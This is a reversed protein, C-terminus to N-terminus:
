CVILSIGVQCRLLILQAHRFSNPTKFKVWLRFNNSFAEIKPSIYKKTPAGLFSKFPVGLTHFLHGVKLYSFSPGGETGYFSM